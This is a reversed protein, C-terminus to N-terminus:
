RISIFCVWNSIVKTSLLAGVGLLRLQVSSPTTFNDVGTTCRRVDHVGPLQVSHWCYKKRHLSIIVTLRIFDFNRYELWNRFALTDFLPRDDFQSRTAVCIVNELRNEESTVPGINVMKKRLTPAYNGSNIRSSYVFRHENRKPVGSCLTFAILKSTQLFAGFSSPKWLLTGQAVAFRVSHWDQWPLTAQPILFLPGPSRTWISWRYSLIGIVQHFFDHFDAWHIKLYNTESRDNCFSVLALLFNGSNALFSRPHVSFLSLAV